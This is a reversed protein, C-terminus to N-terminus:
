DYRRMRINKASNAEVPRSLFLASRFDAILSGPLGDSRFERLSMANRGLQRKQRGGLDGRIEKKFIQLGVFHLAALKQPRQSGAEM